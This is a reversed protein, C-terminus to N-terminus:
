TDMNNNNNNNNNINNNHCCCGDHNMDYEYYIKYVVNAPLPYVPTFFRNNRAMFDRLKEESNLPLDLINDSSDKVYLRRAEYDFTKSVMKSVESLTDKKFVYVFEGYGCCKEVELFVKYNSNYTQYQHFRTYYTELSM